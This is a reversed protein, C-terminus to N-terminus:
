SLLWVIVVGATSGVAILVGFFLLGGVNDAIEVVRDVVAVIKKTKSM